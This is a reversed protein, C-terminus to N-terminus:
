SYSPISSPVSANKAAIIFHCGGGDLIFEPSIVANNLPNPVSYHKGVVELNNVPPIATVPSKSNLYFPTLDLLVAEATGSTLFTSATANCTFNQTGQTLISRRSRVM